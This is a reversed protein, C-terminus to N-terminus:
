KKVESETVRFGRGSCGKAIRHDEADLTAEVTALKNESMADKGEMVVEGWAGCICEWRAKYTKAMMDITGDTSTNKRARMPIM